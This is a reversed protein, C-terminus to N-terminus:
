KLEFKHILKNCTGYEGMTFLGVESVEMNKLNFEPLKIEKRIVDKQYSIISIHPRYAELVRPYGVELLIKKMLERKAYPFKKIYEPDKYKERLHGERLPNLKRIVLRHLKDIKEDKAISVEVGYNNDEKTIILGKFTIDFKKLNDTLKSLRQLIKKKNRSPFEPSYCTIHPIFDKGDLIFGPKGNDALNQSLGIVAEAVERSPIIAINLRIYEDMLCLSLLKFQGSHFM